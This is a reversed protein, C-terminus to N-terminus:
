LALMKRITAEMNDLKDKSDTHNFFLFHKGHSLKRHILGAIIFGVGLGVIALALNGLIKKWGRHQELTIRAIDISETSIKKFDNKAQIDTPNAFYIKSQTKLIHHLNKAVDAASQIRVPNNSTNVSKSWRKIKKKILRLQANFDKEADSYTQYDNVGNPM